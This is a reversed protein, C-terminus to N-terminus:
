IRTLAVSRGVLDSPGNVPNREPTLLVYMMHAYPQSISVLGRRDPLDAMLPWLDLGKITLAQEPGEPTFVWELQIGVRQAATNITEVTPGTPQGNAGPYHYPASNQFGIRFTRRLPRYSMARYIPYAAAALAALAIAAIRKRSFWGRREMRSHVANYG